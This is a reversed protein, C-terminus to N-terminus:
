KGRINKYCYLVMNVIDKSDSKCISMCKKNGFNLIGSNKYLSFDHGWYFVPIGQINCILAWESCNTVVLKSKEVCNFMILYNDLFLVNKLLINKEELGNNMSGIAIVDLKKNIYDFVEISQDSKDFICVVNINDPTEIQPIKFPTFYKQYISITNTNKIYPLSQIEIVEDEIQARILKTIQNFETKTIDDNVFGNQSLENRSIHEYIPIFREKDIWDYLFSRNAHSSIYVNIEPDTIHSIYRIYPRFTLIENSFDGVYPGLLVSKPM